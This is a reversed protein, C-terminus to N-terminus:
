HENFYRMRAFVDNLGRGKGLTGGKQEAVLSGIATAFRGTFLMDWGQLIGYIIGATYADGCGTGDIFKETPIIPIHTLNIEGFVSGKKAIIFSGREGMTLFVAGIGKEILYKALKEPSERSEPWISQSEGWGPKMVDIHSYIEDSAYHWFPYSSAITDVVTIAGNEKAKKLVYLVDAALRKADKEKEEQRLTLELGGLHFVKVKYDEEQLHNRFDFGVCAGLDLAFDKHYVKPMIEHSRILNRATAKDSIWAVRSMNAGALRLEKVLLVGSLDKGVPIIVRPKIGLVSLIFATTRALGGFISELEIDPKITKLEKIATDIWNADVYIIGCDVEKRKIGLFTDPLNENFRQLYIIDEVALGVSTVQTKDRNRQTLTIM